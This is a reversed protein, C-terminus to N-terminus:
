EIVDIRHNPTINTFLDLAKRFLIRIPSKILKSFRKCVYKSLNPICYIFFCPAIIYNIITSFSIWVMYSDMKNLPEYYRFVMETGFSSIGIFLFIVFLLKFKKQDEEENGPLVPAKM